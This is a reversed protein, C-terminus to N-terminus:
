VLSPTSLNGAHNPCQQRLHVAYDSLTGTFCVSALVVRTRCLREIDKHIASLVVIDARFRRIPASKQMFKTPMQAFRTTTPETIANQCRSSLAPPSATPPSRRPPNHNPGTLMPSTEPRHRYSIM